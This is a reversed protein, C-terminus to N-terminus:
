GLDGLAYALLAGGSPAEPLDGVAEVSIPDRCRM